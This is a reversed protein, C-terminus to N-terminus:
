SVDSLRGLPRNRFFRGINDVLNLIRERAIMRGLRRQRDHGEKGGGQRLQAEQAHLEQTLTLLSM